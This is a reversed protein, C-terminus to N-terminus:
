APVDLEPTAGLRRGALTRATVQSPHTEADAEDRRERPRLRMLDVRVHVTCRFREALAAM